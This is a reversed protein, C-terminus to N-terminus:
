TAAATYLRLARSPSCGHCSLFIGKEAQQARKVMCMAEKVAPAWSLRLWWRSAQSLARCCSTIRLTVKWVTCTDQATDETLLSIRTSVPIGCLEMVGLLCERSSVDAAVINRRSNVLVKIVGRPSSLACALM